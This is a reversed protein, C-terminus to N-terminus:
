GLVVQPRNMESKHHVLKAAQSWDLALAKDAFLNVSVLNVLFNLLRTARYIAETQFNTTSEFNSAFTNGIPVYSFNINVRLLM